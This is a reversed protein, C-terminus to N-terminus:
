VPLPDLRGGADPIQVRAPLNLRRQVQQPSTVRSQTRGTYDWIIWVWIIWVLSVENITM